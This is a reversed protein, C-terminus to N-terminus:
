GMHHFSVTVLSKRGGAREFLIIKSIVVEKVVHWCPAKDLLRKSGLKRGVEDDFGNIFLQYAEFGLRGACCGVWGVVAASDLVTVVVNETALFGVRSRHKAALVDDSFM